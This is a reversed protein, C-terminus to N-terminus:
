RKPSARCLRCLKELIQANHKTLQTTITNQFSEQSTSSLDSLATSIEDKLQNKIKSEQSRLKVKIRAEMTPLDDLTITAAATATDLVSFKTSEEDKDKDDLNFCLKSPFKVV